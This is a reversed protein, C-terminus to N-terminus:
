EVLERMAPLYVKEGIEVQEEGFVYKAAFGTVGMNDRGTETVGGVYSNMAARGARARVDRQVDLSRTIYAAFGFLAALVLSLAFMGIALEMMAQAKRGKCEIAM